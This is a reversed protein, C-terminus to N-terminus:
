GKEAVYRSMATLRAETEEPRWKAAEGGLVFTVAALSQAIAGTLSPFVLLSPLASCLESLPSSKAQPQAM